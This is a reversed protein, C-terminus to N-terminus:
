RAMSNCSTGKLFLSLSVSGLHEPKVVQRKHIGLIIDDICKMRIPSWPLRYCQCWYAIGSSHPRLLKAAVQLNNAKLFAKWMTVFCKVRRPLTVAHPRFGIVGPDQWKGRIMIPGATNMTYCFDIYLQLGSIWVLRFKNFGALGM